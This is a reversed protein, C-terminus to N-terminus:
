SAAQTFGMDPLLGLWGPGGFIWRESYGLTSDEEGTLTVGWPIAEDGGGFGQESYGSVKARPLFRSVYIEGFDGQDVAVSLVRYHRTKPRAPKAISVEGTQFAAVANTLDAGTALGITLLKTEQATVTLTTTDSTIDTRTPTVSGWSTTESSSVDRSFAAGDNTLWGLDDWGSPLPALNVGAVSGVGTQGVTFKLNDLVTGTGSVVTVRSFQGTTASLIQLASGVLSATAATGLATNVKTVVSAPTDAALLAITVAPGNNVSVVLNGGTAINVAAASGLVKGGTAAGTLQTLSTIAGASVPAIFVSGDLAKRILETQKNRLADYNPM